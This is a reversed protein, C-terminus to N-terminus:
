MALKLLDPVKIGSANLWPGVNRKFTGETIPKASQRWNIICSRETMKIITVYTDELQVETLFGNSLIYFRGALNNSYYEM